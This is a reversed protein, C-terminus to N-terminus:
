DQEEIEPEFDFYDDDDDDLHPLQLQQQKQITPIRQTSPLAATTPSQQLLSRFMNGFM